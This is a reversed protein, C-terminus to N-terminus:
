AQLFYNDGFRTNITGGLNRPESWGGGAGKTCVYIDEVEISYKPFCIQQLNSLGGTSATFGWIVLNEGLFVDNILDITYSFRFNGDFYM